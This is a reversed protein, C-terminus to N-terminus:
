QKVECMTQGASVKECRHCDLEARRKASSRDRQLPTGLNAKVARMSRGDDM